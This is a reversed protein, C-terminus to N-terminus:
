VYRFVLELEKKSVGACNTKSKYHYLVSVVILGYIISQENSKIYVIKSSNDIFFNLKNEIRRM